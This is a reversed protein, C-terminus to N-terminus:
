GDAAKEKGFAEFIARAREAEEKGTNWLELMKELGAADFEDPVSQLRRAGAFTVRLVSPSEGVPLDVSEVEKWPVFRRRCFLFTIQCGALGDHYVEMPKMWSRKGVALHLVVFASSLAAFDIIGVVPSLTPVFGLLAAIGAIGVVFGVQVLRRKKRFGRTYRLVAAEDGTLVAPRRYLEADRVAKRLARPTIM